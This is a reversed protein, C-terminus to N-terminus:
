MPIANLNHSCFFLFLCHRRWKQEQADELDNNTRVFETAKKALWSPSYIEHTSLFISLNDSCVETLSFIEGSTKIFYVPM